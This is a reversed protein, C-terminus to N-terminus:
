GPTTSRAPDGQHREHQRVGPWRRNRCARLIDQNTQVMSLTLVAGVRAPSCAILGRADVTALAVNADNLSRTACEIGEGGITRWTSPVSSGRCILDPEETAPHRCTTAMSELADITDASRNGQYHARMESAGGGQTNGGLLTDLAGEIQAAKELGALRAADQEGAVAVSPTGRLKSVARVLASADSTFDHVVRLVGNGDLVYLGVRDDPRIQELFRTVHVRAYM